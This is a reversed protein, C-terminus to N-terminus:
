CNCPYTICNCPRDDKSYLPNSQKEAKNANTETAAKKPKFIFYAAIAVVGVGLLIKTNKEM